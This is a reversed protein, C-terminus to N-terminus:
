GVVEGSSARASSSTQLRIKVESGSSWDDNGGISTRGAPDGDGDGPGGQLVERLLLPGAQVRDSTAELVAIEEVEGRHM